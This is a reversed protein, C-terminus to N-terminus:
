VKDTDTFGSIVWKTVYVLFPVVVWIFVLCNVLVILGELWEGDGNARDIFHFFFAAYWLLGIVSLVAALRSYGKKWNLLRLWSLLQLLMNRKIPESIIEPESKPTKDIEEKLIPESIIETGFIPTKDLEEKLIPESIIETGFKPTKDIEEEM